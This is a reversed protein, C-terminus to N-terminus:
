ALIHGSRWSMVTYDLIALRQREARVGRELGSSASHNPSTPLRHALGIHGGTQPAIGATARDRGTLVTLLGGPQYSYWVPAAPAQGATGLAASPVGVAVGALFEKCEAASMAVGM